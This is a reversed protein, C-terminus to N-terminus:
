CFHESHFITLQSFLRLLATKCIIVATVCILFCISPNWLSFLYIRSHLNKVNSLVLGSSFDWPWLTITTWMICLILSGGSLTWSQSTTLLRQVVPLYCSHLAALDTSDTGPAIVLLSIEGSLVAKVYSLTNKWKLNELWNVAIYNWIVMRKRWFVNSLNLPLSELSYNM